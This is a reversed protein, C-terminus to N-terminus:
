RDCCDLCYNITLTIELNAIVSNDNTESPSLNISSVEARKLLEDNNEQTFSIIESRICNAKELANDMASSVDRGACFYLELSINMEDQVVGCGHGLESSVIGTPLIHFGDHSGVSGVNNRAFGDKHERMDPCQAKIRDQLYSRYNFLCSSM